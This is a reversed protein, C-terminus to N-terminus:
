AFMGLFGWPRDRSFVDSTFRYPLFCTAVPILSNAVQSLGRGLPLRIRRHAALALSSEDEEQKRAVPITFPLSLPISAVRELDLHFSYLALNKLALFRSFSLLLSCKGGVLASSPEQTVLTSVVQYEKELPVEEDQEQIDQMEQLIMKNEKELLETHEQLKVCEHSKKELQEELSYLRQLLIEYGSILAKHPSDEDRHRSRHRRHRKASVSRPNKEEEQDREQRRRRRLGQTRQSTRHREKQLGERVNSVIADATTTAIISESCTSPATSLDSDILEQKTPDITVCSAVSQPSITMM